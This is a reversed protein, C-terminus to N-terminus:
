DRSGRARPRFGRSRRTRPRRRASVGLFERGSASRHWAPEHELLVHKRSELEVFQADKIEAALLRGEAIPVVADERSHVVLTPTRVERLLGTVDIEGAGQAAGRGDGADRDQPLAREVM